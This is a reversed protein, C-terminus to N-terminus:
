QKKVFFCLWETKREDNEIETMFNIIKFGAKRLYGTFENKSYFSFFREIKGVYKNQTIIGEEFNLKRKISVFGLGNDKLTRKAELLVDLMEKRPVHLFSAAAWFGDFSKDGFKLNNFDMQLFKGEPNRKKAVKLMGESLDIGIYDFNNRIFVEADRGAGCGLDIVNTGKLNERFFEFENIWFHDHNTTNYQSAIKNYNQITVKKVDM